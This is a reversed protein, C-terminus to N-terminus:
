FFRASNSVLKEFDPINQVEDLFVYNIKGSQFKQKIEFYIDSWKKDLYNEPLEYNYFQIQQKEVGQNLLYESYIKLLTSKGSRRVGSVIKILEKNKYALLKDIYENRNIYRVM